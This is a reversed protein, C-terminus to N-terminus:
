LELAQRTCATASQDKTRAATRFLSAVHVNDWVTMGSLLSAAQFTRIVGRACIQDPRLGLISQGDLKIEGGTPPILGSILNFLTTKGAGNPGILGVVENAAVSFSVDKIAVVGGFSRSACKVELLAAHGMM